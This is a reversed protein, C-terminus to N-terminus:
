SDCVVPIAKQEQSHLQASYSTQTHFNSTNLLILLSHGVPTWHFQAGFSSVSNQFNVNMWKHSKLTEDYSYLFICNGM